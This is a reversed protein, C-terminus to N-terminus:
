FFLILGSMVAHLEFILSQMGLTNMKEQEFGHNVNM